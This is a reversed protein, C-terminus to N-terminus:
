SDEDSIGGKKQKELFHMKPYIHTLNKEERTIFQIGVGYIGNNQDEVRVVKGIVGNQYILSRKELEECTNLAARDFSLWLIDNLNVRQHLNCFLGAQSINTTYGELIRSITEERCVKYALPVAYDLRVFQRREQERYTDEVM